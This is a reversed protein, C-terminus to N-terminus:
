FLVHPSRVVGVVVRLIQVVFCYSGLPVCISFVSMWTIKSRSVISNFGAAREARRYDYALDLRRHSLEECTHICWVVTFHDDVVITSYRCM